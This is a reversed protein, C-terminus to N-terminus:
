DPVFEVLYGLHDSVRKYEHGSFLVMSRIPKLKSNKKLFLFDIRDDEALFEERRPLNGRFIRAFSAPSSVQLFQDDYERGDAILMYGQSGAKTNFDGCLLTASVRDSDMETTWQRLKEFQARFGDKWWSLHVCFVNILGIYPFYMQAMIVKRSHISHIDQGVSVYLADQKIFRQKSLIASGERFRKFGIHSWDTYLYYFHGHERLRERIIGAANSPWNGKGNNWDEGVEQLCIIDIGIERIAREIEKFKEEQDVEQWCHLNLTLVKLGSRHVVYNIGLNNDWIEGLETECGIAYEFVPAGRVKIRCSWLSYSKENGDGAARKSVSSRYGRQFFCPTQHYTKWSDITWRVFVRRVQLSGHVAAVVQRMTETPSLLPQAGIHTLTAGPGLLLGSEVNLFYNCNDNNDWYERGAVRYQLAFHLDGPLGKASSRQIGTKATWQERGRGTRFSFCAPLVHWMKDDGAWHIVIIKAFALDKVVVAFELEQIFCGDKESILSQAYILKIM